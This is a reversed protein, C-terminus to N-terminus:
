LNLTFISSQCQLTSHSKAEKHLYGTAENLAESLQGLYKTLMSLVFWMLVAAILDGIQTEEFRLSHVVSFEGLVNGLMM